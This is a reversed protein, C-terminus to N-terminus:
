GKVGGNMTADVAVTKQVDIRPTGTIPTTPKPHTTTTHTHTPNPEPKPNAAVTKQVGIRPTGTILFLVPIKHPTM